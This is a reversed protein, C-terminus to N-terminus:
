TLTSQENVDTVTAQKSESAEPTPPQNVVSDETVPPTTVINDNELVTEKPQIEEEHNKIEAASADQQVKPNKPRPSPGMLNGLKATVEDLVEAFPRNQM